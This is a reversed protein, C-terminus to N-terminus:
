LIMEQSVPPRDQQDRAATDIKNFVGAVKRRPHM